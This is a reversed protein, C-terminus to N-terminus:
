DFEINAMVCDEGILKYGKACLMGAIPAVGRKQRGSRESPASARDETATEEQQHDAQNSPQAYAATATILMLAFASILKM